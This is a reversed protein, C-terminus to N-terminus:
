GSEPATSTLPPGVWVSRDDTATREARASDQRLIADLRQQAHAAGVSTSATMPDVGTAVDYVITGAAKDHWGQRRGSSDFFPSAYVVWQGVGCALSGAAPVLFRLLARGLGVPRGTEAGLVRLGVLRKGITWGRTGLYWWQFVGLALLLVQGILVLVSPSEVTTVPEGEAVAQLLPLTGALVFGGGLLLAAVGDIVFALLRRAMTAPLAGPTPM